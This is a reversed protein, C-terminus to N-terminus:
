LFKSHRKAPEEVRSVFGMTFTITRWLFPLARSVNLKNRSVRPTNAWRNSRHLLNGLFPPKHWMPVHVKESSFMDLICNQRGCSYVYTNLLRLVFHFPGKISHIVWKGWPHLCTYSSVLTNVKYSYIRDSTLYAWKHIYTHQFMYISSM